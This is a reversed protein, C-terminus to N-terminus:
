AKPLQTSIKWVQEEPRSEGNRPLEPERSINTSGPERPPWLCKGRLALQHLQANASAGPVSPNIICLKSRAWLRYM